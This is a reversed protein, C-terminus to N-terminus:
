GNNYRKKREKFETIIERMVDSCVDTLREPAALYAILSEKSIYQVANIIVGYLKGDAVAKNLKQPKCGILTAVQKTALADPLDAWKETLYARFAKCNKETVNILHPKKGCKRSNFKGTLESLFGPQTETKRKFEDADRLKVAYKHTAQGNNECPIYGHDLLYKMKRTSIHLYQRLESGSLIENM